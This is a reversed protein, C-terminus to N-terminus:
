DQILLDIRFDRLLQNFRDNYEPKLLHFKEVGDFSINHINDFTDYKNNEENKLTCSLIIQKNFTRFLDVIVEEKLSSIEGGRFHDIFIPFDLNMIKSAAYIRAMLFLAGQSGSYNVNSKTFIDIIELPDDPEATEYFERMYKVFEHYVSEKTKTEQESLYTAEDIKSKLRSIECDINYIESDLSSAEVIEKKYFLLNEMSVDEDKMLEALIKQKEMLKSDTDQIDEKAIQIRDMIINRIQNRTDIDTIEFKVSSEKSEFVIRDSGCDACVLKGSELERNLSNLEKLLLENKTVKNILRNKLTILESISDKCKEVSKMKEDIRVKSVTYTAFSAELKKSKLLSSSKKLVKRNEELRKIENSYSLLKEPDIHKSCNMYSYLFECYDDKSYRGRNCINSTIRKDQPLFVMEFFLELGVVQPIGNKVISPLKFINSTFFRKFDNVSDFSKISGDNVIFFDKKRCISILKGNVEIKVIFYYDYYNDFGAPFIPTNGLAYYIGQSVITKGKNNDDSHIINIGDSFDDFYFSQNKDGMSFCVIKIM